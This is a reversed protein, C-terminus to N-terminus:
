RKKINCNGKFQVNGEGGQMMQDDVKKHCMKILIRMKNHVELKKFITYM